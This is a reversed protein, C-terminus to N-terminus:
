FAKHHWGGQNSVADYNWTKFANQGRIVDFSYGDVLVNKLPIDTTLLGEPTTLLGEADPPAIPKGDIYFAASLLLNHYGNPMKRAVDEFLHTVALRYDNSTPIITTECAELENTYYDCWLKLKLTVHKSKMNKLKFYGSFLAVGESIVCLYRGSYEVKPTTKEWKLALIKQKLQKLLYVVNTDRTIASLNLPSCIIVFENTYETLSIYRSEDDSLYFLILNLEDIKSLKVVEYKYTKGNYTVSIYPDSFEFTVPKNHKVDNVTYDNNITIRTSGFGFDAKADPTTFSAILLLALCSLIHYPKPKSLNRM